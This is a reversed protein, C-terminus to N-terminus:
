KARPYSGLLRLFAVKKKIKVLAEAVLKDGRHGILDAFFYYDGLARKSPRSEIKTLNIRRSAFESLVGYLGGPRDSAVSFVISTKDRKTKRHDSKALAVFRTQNEKANIKQAVVQLGYLKALARSGIAAFVPGKIKGHAIIVDGLSTAVQRAAEATSFALHMKARPLKKSLFDRCQDIPQPHSIVDTIDKLRVGKQAILYHYVPLIIESRIKLNVDKVLMDPVIGITGEISNEIPVIAEEIERRDAAYLLNHITSFPIMEVRGAIKSAYIKGAEESFTGEPGLYGVKM